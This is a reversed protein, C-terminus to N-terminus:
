RYLAKVGGWTADETAVVSSNYGFVAATEDGGASYMPVLPPSISQFAMEGPVSPKSTPGVFLQFPTGTLSMLQLSFLTVSQSSVPLDNALGVIYELGGVISANDGVNIAGAPLNQALVFITEDTSTVTLEFANISDFAVADLTSPRLLVVYAFFPTNPGVNVETLTAAEDAFIGVTNDYTHQAFGASPALLSLAALASVAFLLKKMEQNGKRPFDM